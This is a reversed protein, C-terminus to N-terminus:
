AAARLRLLHPRVRAEVLARLEPLAAELASARLRPGVPLARSPFLPARGAMAEDLLRAATRPDLMAQDVLPDPDVIRQRLAEAMGGEARGDMRSSVATRMAEDYRVVLGHCEAHHVLARDESSRMRPMGGIMQYVDARVALSAGSEIYHPRSPGQRGALRDVAHRLEHLLAGYATEAEAVRRCSPRALARRCDASIRGCVLDAGAEAARLAAAIWGPRPVADGDTTLMLVGPRAALDLAMRRAAGASAEALEAVHVEVPLRPHLHARALAASEDICNNALILATVPLPCREAALSLAALLRPLRRAEDRVPIAVIVQSLPVRCRTSLSIPFSADM